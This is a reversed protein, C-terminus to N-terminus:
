TYYLNIKNIVKNFNMEEIDYFSNKNFGVSLVELFKQFSYITEISKNQINEEIIGSKTILCLHQFAEDIKNTHNKPHAKINHQNPTLAILNEYHASITPFESQPFIHHIQTALENDGMIESKGKRHYNNFDKLFRKAKQSLYKIYKINTNDSLIVEHEKRTIFKPKNSSIDRFNFRNYMLMDYTILSPSIRGGVTGKSGKHYAMPNLVKIFIRNPETIKTIKTNNITFTSFFEKLKNFSKNNQNNFFNNFYEFIGSDKLVKEVYNYIFILANKERLAVYYLVDYNNISYMNKGKIKEEKLVGAYTLMKMPQQFFKDYENPASNKPNPKKFIYQINEVTYDSNQIDKSTFSFDNKNLNFNLICDAVVTLVDPACKQDIWRANRSIRIDYNYKKLFLKIDEENLWKYLM